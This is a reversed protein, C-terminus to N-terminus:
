ESVNNASTGLRRLDRRGASASANSTGDSDASVAAVGASTAGVVVGISSVCVVVGISSVSDTNEASSASLQPVVGGGDNACVSIIDGGGASTASTASFGRDGGTSGTGSAGPNRWFYECGSAEASWTNSRM